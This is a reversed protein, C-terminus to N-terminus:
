DACRASAGRGDAAKVPVPMERTREATFFDRVSDLVQRRNQPQLTMGDVFIGLHLNQDAPQVREAAKWIYNRRKRSPLSALGALAERELALVLWRIAWPM